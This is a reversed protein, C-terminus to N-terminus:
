DKKGNDAHNRSQYGQNNGKYQFLSQTFKYKKVSRKEKKKRSQTFQFLLHLIIFPIIISAQNKMELLIQNNEMWNRTLRNSKM